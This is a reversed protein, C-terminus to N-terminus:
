LWATLVVTAVGMLAVIARAIVLFPFTDELFATVFALRDPFLGLVHGAGYAATYAARLVYMYGSPYSFHAPRWDGAAVARMALTPINEQDPHLFFVHLPYARLAL